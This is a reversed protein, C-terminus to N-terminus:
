VAKDRVLQQELEKEKNRLELMYIIFKRQDLYNISDLLDIATNLDGNELSYKFNKVLGNDKTIGMLKNIIKNFIEKDNVKSELFIDIRFDVFLKKDVVELPNHKQNDQIVLKGKLYKEDAINARRISEIIEESTFYMTFGDIEMLNHPEYFRAIDLKSIDIFLYDGPRKMLALFHKQVEVKKM